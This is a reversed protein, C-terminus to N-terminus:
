MPAMGMSAKEDPEEKKVPDVKQHAAALVQYSIAGTNTKTLESHAAIKELDQKTLYVAGNQPSKMTGPGFTLSCIGHEKMLKEAFAKAEADSSFQIKMATSDHGPNKSRINDVMSVSVNVNLDQMVNKVSYKTILDACQQKAKADGGLILADLATKGSDILPITGRRLSQEVQPLSLGANSASPASLKFCPEKESEAKLKSWKAASTSPGATGTAAPAAPQAPQAPPQTTAPKSLTSTKQPGKSEFSAEYTPQAFNGQGKVKTLTFGADELRKKNAADLQFLNMDGTISVRLPPTKSGAYKQAERHLAILSDTTTKNDARDAHLNLVLVGDVEAACGRLPSGTALKGLPSNNDIPKCKSALEKKVWIGVDRQNQSAVMAYGADSMVKAFIKSRNPDLGSYPQEQISLVNAGGAILNKLHGVQTQMRAEYRADTEISLRFGGQGLADGLKNKALINKLGQEDRNNNATIFDKCDAESMGTLAALKKPDQADRPNPIDFSYLPGTQKPSKKIAYPGQLNQSVVNLDAAVQVEHDSMANAADIHTQAAPSLPM